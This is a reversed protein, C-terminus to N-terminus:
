AILPRVGPVEVRCRSGAPAGFFNQRCLFWGYHIEVTVLLFWCGHSSFRKLEIAM